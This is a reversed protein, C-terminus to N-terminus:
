PHPNETNGQFGAPISPRTHNCFINTNGSSSGHAGSFFISLRTSNRPGPLDLFTSFYIQGRKRKEPYKIDM